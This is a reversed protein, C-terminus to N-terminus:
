LVSGGGPLRDGWVLGEPPEPVLEHFADRFAASEGSTMMRHQRSGITAAGDLAPDHSAVVADWVRRTQRAVAPAPDILTVSPGAAAALWPRLFPYHTCGLVIQDVGAALLPDVCAQILAATEPADRRGAEVAEVLGDGPSTVVRARGAHREVLASFGPASLTARTALIGIVGRRTAAAAPKVAPEMGVIRVDPFAERLTPLAAASATNCAVVVMGAGASLLSQTAGVSLDRIESISRSGYPANGRDALYLTSAPPAARVIELWVGLGGLGSDFVGITPLHISEM